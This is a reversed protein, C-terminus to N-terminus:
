KVGVELAALCKDVEGILTEVDDRLRRTAPNDSDTNGGNNGFALKEELKRVTEEKQELEVRLRDREASVSTLEDRLLRYQRLLHGVGNRLDSLLQREKGFLNDDDM